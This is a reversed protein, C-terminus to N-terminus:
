AHSDYVRRDPRVLSLPEASNDFLDLRAGSPSHAPLDHRVELLNPTLAFSKPDSYMKM